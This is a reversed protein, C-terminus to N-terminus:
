GDGVTSVPEPLLIPQLVPFLWVACVFAIAAFLVVWIIVKVWAPLPSILWAIM